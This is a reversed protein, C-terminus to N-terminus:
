PRIWHIWIGRCWAAAYVLSLLGIGWQGAKWAAYLWAPQAILGIPAAYRRLEHSRCQSLWCSAIGCLAIVLQEIM